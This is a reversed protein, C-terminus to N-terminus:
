SLNLLAKFRILTQPHMSSRVEKVANVTLQQLCVILNTNPM